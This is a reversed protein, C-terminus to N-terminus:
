GAMLHRYIAVAAVIEDVACSEDTQHALAPDGPGLIVAPAACAEVLVSADTFFPLARPAPDAVRSAAAAALAARVLPADLPTRVAPLDLLTAIRAGPGLLEAFRRVFGAHSGPVTTRLDVTFAAEDPVSNVAVGGRMTGVNLTMAGLLPDDQGAVDQGAVDQGAVDQGSFNQARCRAIGEAAAYIANRGLHPTAGHAGIGAYTAELWLAGRHGIGVRNGTPEAVVIGSARPLAGIAALHTAGLCGTEEGATLVLALARAGGAAAHELAATVLAAVGAKMDTSGRGHLRGGEVTGSFAGHRWPAAGVPVTDLHGSLVLPAGGAGAHHAVLSPRGPAMAHVAVRFGAAALLPALLEVAAREQTDPGATDLRVLTQALNLPDTM